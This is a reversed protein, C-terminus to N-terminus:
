TSSARRRARAARLRQREQDTLGGWIGDRIRYDLAFARCEDIVWCRRCVAKAAVIQNGAADDRGPPFFLEPDEFRCAAQARWDKVSADAACDRAVGFSDAVRPDDVM